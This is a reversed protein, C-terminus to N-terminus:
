RLMKRAFVYIFLAIFFAGILSELASLWRSANGKPKIYKAGLTSFSAISFLLCYAADKIGIWSFFYWIKDLIPHEQSRHVRHRNDVDKVHKRFYDIEFGEINHRPLINIEIGLIWFLFAFGVITLFSCILINKIREGYGCTLYLFQLKWWDSQTISTGKRKMEMERYFFHGTMDNDGYNQFSNKLNRYIVELDTYNLKLKEEYIIYDEPWNCKIFNINKLFADKFYTQELNEKTITGSGYVRLNTLDITKVNKEEFELILAKEIRVSVLSLNKELRKIGLELDGRVRSSDFNVGSNFVSNIFRTDGNFKVNTFYIENGGNETGFTMGVFDTDNEFVCDSFNTHKKFEGVVFETKGKFEASQFDAEVNFVCDNFYTQDRFETGKFSAESEQDGEGGFVTQEEGIGGSSYFSVRKEFVANDFYVSNEFRVGSFSVEDKFITKKFSADGEFTTDLFKVKDEFTVDNFEAGGFTVRQEFNAHGKFVTSKSLSDKEPEASNFQASEFNVNMFTTNGGFTVNEFITSKKIINIVDTSGFGTNSEFISGKFNIGEDFRFKHFGVHKKFTVNNFHVYGTANIDYFNNNDGGFVANNFRVGGKFIINEEFHVEGEFHADIFNTYNDGRTEFTINNFYVDKEFTANCFNAGDQFTINGFTVNGEFVTNEFNIRNELIRKGSRYISINGKFTCGSFDHVGEDLMSSLEEQTLICEKDEGVVGPIYVISIVLLFIVIVYMMKRLGM